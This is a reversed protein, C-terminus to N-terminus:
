SYNGPGFDPPPPFTMAAVTDRLRAPLRDRPIEGRSAQRTGHNRFVILSPDGAGYISFTLGVVARGRFRRGRWVEIDGAVVQPAPVLAAINAATMDADRPMAGSAPKLLVQASLLPTKNKGHCPSYCERRAPRTREAQELVVRLEGMALALSLYKDGQRVM